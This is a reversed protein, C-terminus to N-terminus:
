CGVHWVYAHVCAERSCECCSRARRTVPAMCCGGGGGVLECVCRRVSLLWWLCVLCVCFSGCTHVVCLGGAVLYPTCRIHPQRFSARELQLLLGAPPARCMNTPTRAHTASAVLRLPLAYIHTHPPACHVCLGVTRQREFRGASCRCYQLQLLLLLAPPVVVCLVCQRRRGQVCVVAGSVQVMYSSSSCCPPLMEAALLQLVVVSPAVVSPRRPDCMVVRPLVVWVHREARAGVMRSGMCVHQWLARATNSCCWCGGRFWM